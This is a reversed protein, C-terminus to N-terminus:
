CISLYPDNLFLSIIQSHFTPDFHSATGAYLHQLNTKFIRIEDLNPKECNVHLILKHNSDNIQYSIIYNRLHSKIQQIDINWHHITSEM